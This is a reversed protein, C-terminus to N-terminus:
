WSATVGFRAQSPSVTARARVFAAQQFLHTTGTFVPDNSGLSAGTIYTFAPGAKLNTGSADDAFEFFVDVRVSQNASNNPVTVTIDIAPPNGTFLTSWAAWPTTGTARTGTAWVTVTPM